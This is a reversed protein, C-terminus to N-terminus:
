GRAAERLGDIFDSQADWGMRTRADAFTRAWPSVDLREFPIDRGSNECIGYHKPTRTLRHLALNIESLESSQLTGIAADREAHLRHEFYRREANTLPV